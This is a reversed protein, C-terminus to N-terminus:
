LGKMKKGKKKLLFRIGKKILSNFVYNFEHMSSLISFDVSFIKMSNEKLVFYLCIKIGNISHQFQINSKEYFQQNLASRWSCKFLKWHVEEWTEYFKAWRKRRFYKEKLSSMWYKEIIWLSNEIIFIVIKEKEIIINHMKRKTFKVNM